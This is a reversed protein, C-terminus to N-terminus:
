KKIICYMATTYFDCLHPIQFISPLVRRKLGFKTEYNPNILFYTQKLVKYNEKKILRKFRSISIGTDKIEVLSEIIKEDEGFLRLVAKYIGYPLIHYYPLLSLLKSKCVQQHGGFPMRWPPFGFFIVGEDKLFVKIIKFFEEQNPIHEIVDRLFILDFKGVEEVSMRYIDRAIVQWKEYKGEQLYEKAKEIQSTSIDVGVVECGMDLFPSLNGGEGCGVELVRSNKDINKVSNVYPVVYKLTTVGQEKFYLARDKHREQMQAILLSTFKNSKLSSFLFLLPFLM